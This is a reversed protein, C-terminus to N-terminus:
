SNKQNLKVIILSSLFILIILTFSLCLIMLISFLIMDYIQVQSVASIGNTFLGIIYITFLAIIIKSSIRYSFLSCAQFSTTKSSSSNVKKATDWFLFIIFLPFIIGWFIPNWFPGFDTISILFDIFLTKTFILLPFISSVLFGTIASYKTISKKSEM